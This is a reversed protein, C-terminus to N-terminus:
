SDVVQVAERNFVVLFTEDADAGNPNKVEIGDYGQLILDTTFADQNFQYYNEAAAQQGETPIGNRGDFNLESFANRAIPAGLEEVNTENNDLVFIKSDPKLGAVSVKGGTGEDSMGAYRDATAKKNSFYYGDGYMGLGIRDRNNNVFNDTNQNSAGRYYVTGQLDSTSNVVEPKGGKGSEELLVQMPVNGNAEQSKKPDYTADIREQLNTGDEALDQISNYDRRKEIVLDEQKTTQQGRVTLVPGMEGHEVVIINRYDPSRAGRDVKGFRTEVAEHAAELRDENIVQGPDEDGYIPMEGCDCGPHIPLLDGKRYRQTSAVFCLACNESGTLTRAFGVINPQNNRIKRNTHTRALQVETQALKKVRRAGANIADKVTSGKSLATRVDVFGRKMIQEFSVGGRLAETTLEDESIETKTFPQDQTRAVNDYFITQSNKVARKLGVVKPKVKEIFRPIDEDRWSGLNQFEAEALDGAKNVITSMMDGNAQALEERIAM